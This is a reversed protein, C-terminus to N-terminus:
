RRMPMAAEKPEGKPMCRLYAGGTTKALHEGLADQAAGPPAIAIVGLVAPTARAANAKAIRAREVDTAEDGDCDSILVVGLPAEKELLAQEVALALATNGSVEQSCLWAKALALGEADPLRLWGGSVDRRTGDSAEAPPTWREIYNAFTQFKIRGEDSACEAVYMAQQVASVYKDGAMSGSRDVLVVIAQPFEVGRIVVERRYGGGAVCMLAVAALLSRRM